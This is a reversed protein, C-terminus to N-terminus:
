TRMKGLEKVHTRELAKSQEDRRGTDTQPVTKGHRVKSIIEQRRSEVRKAEGYSWESDRRAERPPNAQGM